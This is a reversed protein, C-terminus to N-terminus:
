LHKLRFMVFLLRVIWLPLQGSDYKNKLCRKLHTRWNELTSAALNSM